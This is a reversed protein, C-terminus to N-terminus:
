FLFDFRRGVLHQLTKKLGMARPQRRKGRYGFFDGPEVAGFGLRLEQFGHLVVVQVFFEPLVAVVPGQDEAEGAALEFGLAATNKGGFILEIGSCLLTSLIEQIKGSYLYHCTLAGRARQLSIATAHM